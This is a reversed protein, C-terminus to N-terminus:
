GPLHVAVTTDGPVSTLEVTGGHASVIAEVLSLGLGTGTTGPALAGARASRLALARGIGSGAGTIVVVKDPLTTLSM